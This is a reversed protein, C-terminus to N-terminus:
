NEVKQQQEDLWIQLTAVSAVLENCLQGFDSNNDFSTVSKDKMLKDAESMLQRAYTFANRVDTKTTSYENRAM